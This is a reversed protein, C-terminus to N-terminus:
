GTVAPQVRVPRPTFATRASASANRVNIGSVRAVNTRAGRVNANARVWVYTTRSAGAPIRGLKVVVSRKAISSKRNSRVFTLGGPLVDRLVVGTAARNSTNKVTIRYRVLGLAKARKPGGKSIRLTLKGSTAAVPVTPAAPTAAPTVPTVPAAAFTVATSATLTSPRANVTAQSGRLPTVRVLVGDGATSAGVTVSGPAASTLTATATGDPGLTVEGTSLTGTGATISLSVAAGARGTVTITSTTAGPAPASASLGLSAPTAAAARAAAVLAAVEANFAPDSTPNVERLDGDLVWVATQSLAARQQKAPTPPGVLAGNQVVYLIARNQVTDLPVEQVDSQVTGTNLGSTADVCFSVVPTGDLTLNITGAQGVLSAPSGDPQFFTGIDSRYIDPTPGDDQGTYTQTQVAAAAVSAQLALMGALLVLFAILWRVSFPKASVHQTM